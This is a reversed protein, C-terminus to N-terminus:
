SIFLPPQFLPSYRLLKRLTQSTQATRPYEACTTLADVSRFPGSNASHLSNFPETFVLCVQCAFAPQNECPFSLLPLAYAAAVAWYMVFLVSDTVNRDANSLLTTFM